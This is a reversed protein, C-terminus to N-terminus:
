SPREGLRQRGEAGLRLAGEQWQGCLADLHPDGHPAPLRPGLRALAEGVHTHPGGAQLVKRQM